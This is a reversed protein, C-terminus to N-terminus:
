RMIKQLVTDSVKVSIQKIYNTKSCNDTMCGINSSLIFTKLFIHFVQWLTEQFRSLTVLRILMKLKVDWFCYKTSENWSNKKKFFNCCLIDYCKKKM